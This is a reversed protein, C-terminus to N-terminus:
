TLIRKKTVFVVWMEPYKQKMKTGFAFANARVSPQDSRLLHALHQRLNMDIVGRLRLEDFWELYTESDHM